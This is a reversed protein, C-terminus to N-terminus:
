KILYRYHPRQVMGSAIITFARVSKEGDSVTTSINPDLYSTSLKIKEVNLGKKEIRLALKEISNDYHRIAQKEQIAIYDEVKGNMNIVCAPLSGYKNEKSVDYNAKYDKIFEKLRAYEEVAWEKTRQVYAEKLEITENRLREVLNSM